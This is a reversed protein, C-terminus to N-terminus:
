LNSTGNELIILDLVLGRIDRELYTQMYAGFYDEALLEKDTIMRSMGGRYIKEFIDTVTDASETVSVQDPLFPTSLRQKIEARSLSYMSLIGVRGALSESVNRMMPFMQSSALYYLGNQGSRDAYIKIYSPLEKQIIRFNETTILDTSM